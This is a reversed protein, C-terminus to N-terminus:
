GLSQYVARQFELFLPASKVDVFPLVQTLYVGGLNQTPDIWFFSNALGAWMLSNASQGTPAREANIQFGFTYHKEVGPFFEADNSLGPIATKLMTVRIPGIQNRTMMDVTEPQLVQRGNARGRNLIMRLFQAYDGATGYLGGGGMEFEPDQPIELDLATLKGDDGRQHIKALRARMSPTIRFATDNMGLPALVNEELVRGLRKGSVAEVAKGVWDINIGYEWRDGPDFLLPTRLAANQCTTIGPVDKAKQYQQIAPSWFEYSFGATHTLLHRLTIARKPPRALPRGSADFGDLVQATGIEAVWRSAPSDLDLKGREVLQMAATSTLAKTMSAIWVVTDRTMPAEQGLVRKGFAGEYITADRSTALAVVGPVDGADTARRLLADVSQKLSM